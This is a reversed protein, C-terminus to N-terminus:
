RKWYWRSNINLNQTVTNLYYPLTPINCKFTVVNPGSPTYFKGGNKLNTYTKTNGKKDKLKVTVSVAVSTMEFKIVKNDGINGGNINETVTVPTITGNNSINIFKYRTFEAAEAKFPLAFLVSFTIFLSVIAILGAIFAKNKRMTM